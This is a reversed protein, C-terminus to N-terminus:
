IELIDNKIKDMINSFFQSTVNGKKELIKRQNLTIIKNYMVCSTNPLALSELNNPNIRITYPPLVTETIITLGVFFNASAHFINKSIILVYLEPDTAKSNGLNISVIDGPKLTQFNNSM